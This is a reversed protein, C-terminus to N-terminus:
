LIRKAVRNKYLWHCHTYGFMFTNTETIIKKKKLFGTSLDM